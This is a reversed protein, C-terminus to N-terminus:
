TLEATWYSRILNLKREVTREVVGLASAIEANTYGMLKKEVIQRLGEDPLLEMLRQCEDRLSVIFEPTLDDVIVEAPGFSSNDPTEFVSEGRVHGGGRKAALQRERQNIAKCATIKALLPWLNTRDHLEPFRGAAVGRFFSDLASLAVDEEDEARRPADGLKLRALGVLRKFYRDWLEQQAQAADGLELEAIWHTISRDSSM